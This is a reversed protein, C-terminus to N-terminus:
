RQSPAAQRDPDSRPAPIRAELDSDALLEATIAASAPRGLLFGQGLHYGLDGLLTVQEPTEIGEAILTLSLREALGQIGQLMAVSPEATTPGSVFSRDIKLIDAPLRALTSLSSFGTGFDDIAVRVGLARLRNLASVAGGSEIALATETVELVLGGVAVDPDTLVGEVAAVGAPTALQLASVNVSMWLRECGPIERRWAAAQAAATRLVWLGIRDIDGTEEALQIFHSPPLLGLRPHQWRVLAETGFVEGTRLSLIPQYVLQLQGADAAQALESKLESTGVMDEHMQADFLKYQNKGAGKAMYMAFDAQRLLEAADKTDPRRPAVGISCAVQLRRGVVSFPSTLAALIREAVEVLGGGDELVVVAFEDGGLRAVLDGGRVCAQLREALQILLQDGGEHGLSDNVNKFDDIDIFLLSEKQARRDSGQGFSSTLRDTLTARNALGTLTDYSARQALARHHHDLVSAMDNFAEALEGLEDRRAVEILCDYEGAKLNRVGQHLNAVPRMLDRAMRRRFYVTVTLAAAFMTSLGIVLARELAAGRELGRDMAQLLPPELADLRARTADSSAVFFRSDASHDGHMAYVQDGWLGYALLSAKWSDQAAVMQRRLSSGNPFMAAAADFRATIENQQRVFDVRDVADHGMLQQAVHEHQVVADRLASVTVSERDLERATSQVQDLVGRVGLVTAVAAILLLVLLVAFARSWERRLSWTRGQEETAVGQDM